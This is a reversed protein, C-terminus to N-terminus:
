YLYSIRVRAAYWTRRQKGFFYSRDNFVVWANEVPIQMTSTYFRARFISNDTRPNKSQFTAIAITGKPYCEGTKVTPKCPM